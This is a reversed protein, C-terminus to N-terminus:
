LSLLFIVGEAESHLPDYMCRGLESSTIAKMSSGIFFLHGLTTTIQFNGFFILFWPKFCILVPEKSEKSFHSSSCYSGGQYGKPPYSATNPPPYKIKQLV